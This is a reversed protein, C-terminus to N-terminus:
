PRVRCVLRLRVQPRCSRSQRARHPCPRTSEWASISAFALLVIGKEKCIGSAGNGASVPHAKSRSWPQSSEQLSTDNIGSKVAVVAESIASLSDAAARGFSSTGRAISESISGMSQGVTVTFAHNTVVATVGTLAGTINDAVTRVFTIPGWRVAVVAESIASLSDSVTRSFATVGRAVAETISSLSDAATRLRGVQRTVAETLTAISDAATRGLQKLGTVAESIAGVWQAVTRVVSVGAAPISSSNPMVKSGASSRTPSPRRVRPVSASAMRRLLPAGDAATSTAPVM